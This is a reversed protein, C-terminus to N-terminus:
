MTWWTKSPKLEECSKLASFAEDDDDPTPFFFCVFLFTKTSVFFICIFPSKCFAKSESFLVLIDLLLLTGIRCLSKLPVNTFFYLSMECCTTKVCLDTFGPM